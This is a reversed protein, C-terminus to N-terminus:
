AILLDLASNEGILKAIYSRTEGSLQAYLEAANNSPPLKSFYGRNYRAVVRDLRTVDNVTEQGLLLQLYLTGALINIAPDLLHAATFVNAAGAHAMRKIRTIADQGLLKVLLVEAAPKMKSQKFLMHCADTATGPQVQMLGIANASSIAAPNGASEIFIFATILEARVGTAASAQNILRGYSAKIDYMKSAVAQQQAAGYFATKIREFKM